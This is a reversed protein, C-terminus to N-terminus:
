FVGLHRRALDLRAGGVCDRRGAGTSTSRKYLLLQARSVLYQCFRPPYPLHAAALFSCSLCPLHRALSTLPFLCFACLPPIGHDPAHALNEIDDCRGNGELCSVTEWAAKESSFLFLPTPLQIHWEFQDYDVACILRLFCRASHTLKHFLLSVFFRVAENQRSAAENM